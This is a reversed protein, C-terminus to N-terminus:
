STQLNQVLNTVKEGLFIFFNNMIYVPVTPCINPDHDRNLILALLM